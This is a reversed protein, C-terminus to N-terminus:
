EYAFSILSTSITLAPTQPFRTAVCKNRKCLNVCAAMQDLKQMRDCGRRKESSGRELRLFLLPAM